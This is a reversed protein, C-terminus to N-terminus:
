TAHALEATGALRRLASSVAEAILGSREPELAELDAQLERLDLEAIHHAALSPLTEGGERLMARLQGAYTESPPAFFPRSARIREADPASSVLALLPERLPAAVLYEILELSSARSKSDAHVFLGVHIQRFNESPHLLGLMRFVRELCSQEQERLLNAILAATSTARASAAALEVEIALRWSLLRIARRLTAAAVEAILARDIPVEPNDAVMRGLGRLIKYVIRGDLEDRLRSQLIHVARPQLFKSITRPLHRRLPAPLTPDALADELVDLAPYGIALLARRADHRTHRHALMPLLRPVLTPSPHRAIARAVEAQVELEPAVSLRRLAAVFRGDGASGIARALALRTRGCDGASIRDVLADVESAPAYGRRALAVLATCRVLPQPDDLAARLLSEDPDGEAIAKLAAARIDPDLSGLLTNAIPWFDTRGAGSLIDLARVVVARSPHYLILAPIVAVRGAVELLELANCVLAEESSNLAALLAELSRLDLPPMAQRTEIVGERLQARFLELYHRELAAAIALWVLALLVVAIALHVPEAGWAGAALVALAAFAQGVRAGAGDVLTKAAVRQESHLPLYLLESSTRHLSHRLGGDFAKMALVPLLMATVAFAGASMALLAPLVLLTRSVGLSRLLRSALLLQVLLAAGNTFAYFTAFLEGLEAPAVTEAVVTKFVLDAATVTVATILVLALLRGIYPDRLVVAARRSKPAPRRNLPQESGASLALPLLAVLALLIAGILVLATPAVLQLAVGAGAAGLMAGAVGGAGIISFARKARAVDFRAGLLIWFQSVVITAVLGTWVYFVYLMAHSAEPALATLSLWIAATVAAAGLLTLTLTRRALSRALSADAARVVLLTLVAIALYVWPLQSAPLRSLFLTDRATELMSHAALTGTLTAVAVAVDRREGSAIVERARSM